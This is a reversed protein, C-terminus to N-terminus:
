SWLEEDIQEFVATDDQFRDFEAQSWTGALKCLGNSRPEASIGLARRLLILVTENLSTDRQRRERQLRRWPWVFASLFPILRRYPSTFTLDADTSPPTHHHPLPPWKKNPSSSASM